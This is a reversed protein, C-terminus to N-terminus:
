YNGSAGGTQVSELFKMVQDRTSGPNKALMRNIDGETIKGLKPHDMIFAGGKTPLKGSAQIKEIFKETDRLLVGVQNKFSPTSQDTDLNAIRQELKKGEAETVAGLTIGAAKLKGLENLFVPAKLGAVAKQFDNGKSSNFFSRISSGTGTGAEIGPHDAVGHIQNLLAQASDMAEQAGAGTEQTKKGQEAVFKDRELVLRGRDTESNAQAIQVNLDDIRRKAAASLNEEVPKQILAPVTGAAVTAEAGAKVADANKKALDAPAQQQARQEGGVAGYTAAFKDPGVAASLILGASTKAMDPHDRVMTAMMEAAKADKENGVNRLAAAQDNLIKQAVDPKGSNIAAYVQSAHELKAQKQGPELIDFSRKFNESLQPYKLSMKGIEETTPNQSLAALDANMQAAALKAKERDEQAQQQARMAGGMKLGDLM